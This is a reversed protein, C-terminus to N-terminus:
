RGRTPSPTSCPAPTTPPAGITEPVGVEVVLLTMAITFVADTFSMVRGFDDRESPRQYRTSAM